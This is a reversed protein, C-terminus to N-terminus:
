DAGLQTGAEEGGPLVRARQEVRRAKASRRARREQPGELIVVGAEVASRGDAPDL